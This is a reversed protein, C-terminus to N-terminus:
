SNAKKEFTLFFSFASLYVYHFAIYIYIYKEGGFFMAYPVVEKTNTLKNKM